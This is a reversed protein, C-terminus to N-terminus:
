SSSELELRDTKRNSYTSKKVKKKQKDKKGQMHIINAQM